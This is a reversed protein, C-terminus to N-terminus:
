PEIRYRTWVCKLPVMRSFPTLPIQKEMKDNSYLQLFEPTNEKGLYKFTFIVELSLGERGMGLLKFTSPQGGCKLLSM